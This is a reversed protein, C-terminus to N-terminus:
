SLAQKLSDNAIQAIVESIEFSNDDSDTDTQQPFDLLLAIETKVSIDSDPSQKKSCKNSGCTLFTFCAFILFLRLWFSIGVGIVSTPFVLDVILYQYWSFM